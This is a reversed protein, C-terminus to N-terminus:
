RAARVSRIRSPEPIMCIELRVGTIVAMFPGAEAPIISVLWGSMEQVITTGSWGIKGPSLNRRALDAYSQIDSRRRVATQLAAPYLTANVTNSLLTAPRDNEQALQGLVEDLKELAERMRDRTSTRREDSM